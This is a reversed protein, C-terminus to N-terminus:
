YYHAVELYRALMNMSNYNSADVQRLVKESTLIIDVTVDELAHTLLCNNVASYVDIDYITTGDFWSSGMSVAPPFFGAYAFSALMIDQLHADVDAALMDDYNGTLVNTLGIDVFRKQAGIDTLETALFEQLLLPSYLGGEMVLGQAVGGTWDRYLRTNSADQWFKIIRDAAANEEGIPFSGLIATNVGGGSMGSISSYAHAAAGNAAILGKLVGAQYASTETGAGFALAYCTDAVAQHATLALVLITTQKM